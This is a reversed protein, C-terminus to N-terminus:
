QPMESIATELRDLRRQVDALELWRLCSDDLARAARLKLSPASSEDDRLQRMVAHSASLEGVLGRVAAAIVADQARQLDALFEPEDLWTYLTRLGVGATQAADIVTACTLLAAIAKSRKVPFTGNTAKMTHKKQSFGAARPRILRPRVPPPTGFVGPHSPGRNRNAPIAPM